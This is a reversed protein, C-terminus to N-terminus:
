KNTFLISGLQAGALGQGFPMGVIGGAIAGGARLFPNTGGTTTNTSTVTNLGALRQGLMSATNIIPQQVQAQGGVALNLLNFLNGMNTEAAARRIDGATRSAISAAVGSDAIGAQQFMPAIDRLSQQAIDGAMTDSIGGPLTSLYGPLAQGTLLQNVLNGGAENLQRQLPDFAKAQELQLKNLEREEATPEVSTTNTTTTKSSGM